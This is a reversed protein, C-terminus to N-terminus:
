VTAQSVTLSVDSNQVTPQCCKVSAPTSLGRWYGGWTLEGGKNIYKALYPAAKRDADYIRCYGSSRDGSEWRVEWRKRSLESLGIGSILLHYHVVNRVQWETALIWRLQHGGKDEYGQRLHGLWKNLLKYSRWQEIFTKFTLTVFWVGMDPGSWMSWEIWRAFTERKCDQFFRHGRPLIQHNVFPTSKSISRKAPLTV